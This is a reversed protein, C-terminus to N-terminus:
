VWMGVPIVPKIINKLGEVRHKVKKSREKPKTSKRFLSSM